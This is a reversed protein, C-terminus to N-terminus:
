FVPSDPTWGVYLYQAGILDRKRIAGNRELTQNATGWLTAGIALAALEGSGDQSSFPEGAVQYEETLRPDFIRRMHVNSSSGGSAIMIAKKAKITVTPATMDVLG